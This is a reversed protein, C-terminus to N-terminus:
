ERVYLKYANLKQQLLASEGLVIKECLYAQSVTITNALRDKEIAELFDGYVVQASLGKALEM